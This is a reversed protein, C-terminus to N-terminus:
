AAYHVIEVEASTNAEKLLVEVREMVPDEILFESCNECALVPLDRLIVITSESIKFPLATIVPQMAAGCIHCKM